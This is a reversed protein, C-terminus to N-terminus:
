PQRPPQAAADTVAMTTTQLSQNPETTKKETYFVALLTFAMAPLALLFGESIMGLLFAMPSGYGDRREMGGEQIMFIIRRSLLTGYAIWFVSAAVATVSRSIREKKLITRALLILIATFFCLVAFAPWKANWFSVFLFFALLPGYIVLYGITVPIRLNM